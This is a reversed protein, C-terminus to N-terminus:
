PLFIFDIPWATAYVNSALSLGFTYAWFHITRWRGAKLSERPLLARQIMELQPSYPDNEETTGIRDYLKALQASDTAEITSTLTSIGGLRPEVDQPSMLNLRQQGHDFM